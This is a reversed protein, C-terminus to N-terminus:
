IITPIPRLWNTTTYATAATYLIARPCFMM